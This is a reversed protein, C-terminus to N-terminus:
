EILPLPPERMLLVATSGAEMGSAVADMMQQLRNTDRRLENIAEWQERNVERLGKLQVRFSRLAEEIFEYDTPM